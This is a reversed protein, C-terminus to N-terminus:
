KCGGPWYKYSSITPSNIIFEDTQKDFTVVTELGKLYTGHGLETQAEYFFIIIKYINNFKLKVM